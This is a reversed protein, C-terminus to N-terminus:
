EATFCAPTPRQEQWSGLVGNTGSMQPFFEKSAEDWFDFRAFNAGIIVAETVSM